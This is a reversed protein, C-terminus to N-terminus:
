LVEPLVTYLELKALHPCSICFLSMPKVTLKLSEASPIHVTEKSGYFMIM